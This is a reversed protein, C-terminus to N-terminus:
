GCDDVKGARFNLDAHGRFVGLAGVDSGSQFITELRFNEFAIRMELYVVFRRFEDDSALYGAEVHRRLLVVDLIDGRRDLGRCVGLAFLLGL